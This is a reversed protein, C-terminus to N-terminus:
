RARRRLLFFSESAGPVPVREFERQLMAWVRPHSISLRMRPDNGIPTGDLVAWDVRALDGIMREQERDDAAWAPYIDWTPARRDFLPYLGLFHASAFFPAGEPVHRRVCAVLSGISHARDPPFHIPTGAVDLAVHKESADATFRVVFPLSRALPLISLLALLTWASARVLTARAHAFALPSCLVGVLFPHFSQALHSLDSRVSAHHFWAGGVFAVAAFPALRAADDKRATLARLAFLAYAVVPLTFLASRSAVFVVGSPKRGSFREDWPWPFPMEANLSSQRLYFAISDVFAERYGSAFAILALMPAYGVVVGAAFVACSKQFPADRKWACYLVTAGLGAVAYVGLNRGFFAALGAVAGAVLVRRVSPLEVLRVACLTAVLAFSAEFLKWPPPMWLALLGGAAVLWWSSSLTRRVVLLGATIGFSAFCWQSARQAILGEGFVASWAASWFYRGPDYSRFDRLPLEGELVRLTGYWVFAEDQLNFETWASAVFLVAGWAFAIWACPALHPESALVRSVFHTRESAM